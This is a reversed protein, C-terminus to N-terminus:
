KAIRSYRKPADAKAEGHPHIGVIDFQASGNDGSKGKSLHMGTQKVRLTVDYTKGVKWDKAEPLADLSLSVNPYIVDAAKSVESPYMDKMSKGKITRMGAM